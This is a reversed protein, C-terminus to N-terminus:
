GSYNSILDLIGDIVMKLGKAPYYILFILPLLLYKKMAVWIGVDETDSKLKTIIPELLKVLANVAYSTIAVVVIIALIGAFEEPTPVGFLVLSVSSKRINSSEVIGYKSALYLKDKRNEYIDALMSISEKPNPSRVIRKLQKYEPKNVIRKHEKLIEKPTMGSDQVVNQALSLAKFRSIISKLGNRVFDFMAQKELQAVRNELIAIKQSATLRM